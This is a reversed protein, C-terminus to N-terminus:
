LGIPHGTEPLDALDRRLEALARRRWPALPSFRRQRVRHVRLVLLAVPNGAGRWSPRSWPSPV